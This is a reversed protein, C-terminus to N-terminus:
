REYAGFVEPHIVRCFLELTDLMRQSPHVTPSGVIVVRNQRVADIQPLLKWVERRDGAHPANPNHVVEIILEPNIAAIWEEQVKLFGKDNYPAVNEAGSAALLEDLFSGRAAVYVDKLTGPVRDVVFLTRPHPLRATETARAAIRRQVETALKEAQEAHAIRAGIERIAQTVQAITKSKVVLSRIGLQALEQEFFPAQDEVMIVLDPHLVAIAEFNADAFSSVHPLRKAEEPFDCFETDAVLSSFAGVGYVMETISPSLSIIRQSRESPAAGSSTRCAFTLLSAIIIATVARLATYNRGM